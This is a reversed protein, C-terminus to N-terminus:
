KKKDLTYKQNELMNIQYMLFKCRDCINEEWGSLVLCFKVLRFVFYTKVGRLVSTNTWKPDQEYM